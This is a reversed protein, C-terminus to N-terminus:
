VTTSLDLFPHYGSYFIIEFAFFYLVTLHIFTYDQQQQGRNMRSTGATYLARRQTAKDRVRAELLTHRHNEVLSTWLVFSTGGLRRQLFNLKALPNNRVKASM